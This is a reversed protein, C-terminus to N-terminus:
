GTECLRFQTRPPPLSSSMGGDTFKSPPEATDLQKLGQNENASSREETDVSSEAWLINRQATKNKRSGRSIASFDDKERFGQIAQEVTDIRISSFSFPSTLVQTL